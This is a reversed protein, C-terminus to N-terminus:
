SIRKLEVTEETIERTQLSRWAEIATRTWGIREGKSTAYYYNTRCAMRVGSVRADRSSLYHAAHLALTKLPGRAPVDGPFSSRPWNIEHGGAALRHANALAKCHERDGGRLFRVMGWRPSDLLEAFWKHMVKPGADGTGVTLWGLDLASLADEASLYGSIEDALEDNLYQVLIALYRSSCEPFETIKMDGRQWSISQMACLKNYGDGTGASLRPVMNRLM